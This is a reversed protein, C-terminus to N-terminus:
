ERRLEGGYPDDADDPDVQYRLQDDDVSTFTITSTGCETTNPSFKLVIRSATGELWSLTGDLCGTESTTLSGATLGATLTIHLNYDVGESPMHGSGTWKGAFAEPVADVAPENEPDSSDRPVFVWLAVGVLLVAVAAVAAWRAIRTRWWPVRRGPRAPGSVPDSVPQSVPASVPGAPMRATAAAAPPPHNPMRATGAEVTPAGADVQPVDVAATYARTAGEALLTEPAPGGPVAAVTEAAVTEAAVTEAAVTEGAARPVPISVEHDAGSLLSLLLEGASPRDAPDKALAAAVKERLSGTLRGLDPEDHLIRHFTAPISDGAFPMVGNAAFLMTGAWAFVDAKPGVNAGAIQEPAMYAPTGVVHATVVSTSDLARAIGFDIVRPGDPGLLV